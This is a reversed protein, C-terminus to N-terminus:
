PWGVRGFGVALRAADSAAGRGLASLLGSLGDCVSGAKLMETLARAVAVRAGDTGVLQCLRPLLTAAKRRWKASNLLGVAAEVLGIEADSDLAELLKGALAAM